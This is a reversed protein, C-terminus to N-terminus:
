AYAARIYDVDDTVGDGYAGFQHVNKVARVSIMVILGNDLTHDGYEDPASEGTIATFEDLSVVDYNTGGVPERSSAAWGDYYSTTRVRDGLALDTGKLIAVSAVSPFGHSSLITEM